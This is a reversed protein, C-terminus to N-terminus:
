SEKTNVKCSYIKRLKSSLFSALNKPPPQMQLLLSNLAVGSGNSKPRSFDFGTVQLASIASFRDRQGQAKVLGGPDTLFPETGDPDLLCYVICDSGDNWSTRDLGVQCVPSGAQCL